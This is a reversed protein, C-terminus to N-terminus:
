RNMNVHRTHHGVRMTEIKNESVAVGATEFVTLMATM